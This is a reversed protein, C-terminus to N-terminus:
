YLLGNKSSVLFCFGGWFFPSTYFGSVHTSLYYNFFFFSFFASPSLCIISPVEQHPPISLLWIMSGMCAFTTLLGGINWLLHLYAGAASAILACCVSLYVQLLISLVFILLMNEKLLFLLIRLLCFGCSFISGIV